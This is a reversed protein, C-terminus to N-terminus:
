KNSVVKGNSLFRVDWEGQEKGNVLDWYLSSHASPSLEDYQVANGEVTVQSAFYFKIDSKTYTIAGINILHALASKGTGLTVGLAMPNFPLVNGTAIFARPTKTDLKKFGKVAESLATYAGVVNVNLDKVFAEPSVAFPDDLKSPFTLNAANYVVVNPIGFKEHVLAFAAEVSKVDSLDVTLALFGEEKAKNNDPNRSGVAVQYGEAKFKRAVSYGIGQGAGLVVITNLAM